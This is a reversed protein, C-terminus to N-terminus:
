LVSEVAVFASPAMRLESTKTANMVQAVNPIKKRKLYLQVRKM